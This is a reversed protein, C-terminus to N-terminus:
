CRTCSRHWASSTRARMWSSDEVQEPAAYAVTGVFMFAGTLRTEDGTDKLAALGFDVLKYAREGAGFRHAVINAPKIDRHVIGADHAMQLAACIPPIFRRM